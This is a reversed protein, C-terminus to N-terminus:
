KLCRVDPVRLARSLAWETAMSWIVVAMVAGVLAAILGILIGWGAGLANRCWVGLAIGGGFGMALAAISFRRSGLWRPLAPLQRRHREYYDAISEGTDEWRFESVPFASGCHACVTKLMGPVPAAMNRFDGGDVTTVERCRDHVYARSEPISETM